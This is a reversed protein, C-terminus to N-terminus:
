VNRSSFMDLPSLTEREDGRSDNQQWPGSPVGPPGFPPMGYPVGYGPPPYGCPM